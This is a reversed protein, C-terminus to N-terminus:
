GETMVEVIDCWDIMLNNIKIRNKRAIWNLVGHQLMWAELRDDLSDNYDQRLLTYVVMYLWYINQITHSVLWTEYNRYGNYGTTM